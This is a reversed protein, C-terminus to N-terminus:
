KSCRQLKGQADEFYLFALFNTKAGAAADNFDEKRMRLIWFHLSHALLFLASPYHRFALKDLKRL